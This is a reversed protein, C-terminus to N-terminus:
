ALHFPLNYQEMGLDLNLTGGDSDRRALGAARPLRAFMTIIIRILTIVIIVFILSQIDLYM